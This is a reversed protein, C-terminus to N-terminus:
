LILVFLGVWIGAGALVSPLIWWGSASGPAAVKKEDSPAVPPSNSLPPLDRGPKADSM